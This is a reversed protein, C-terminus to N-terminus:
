FHILDTNQLIISVTGYLELLGKGLTIGTHM